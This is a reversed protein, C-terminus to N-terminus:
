FELFSSPTRNNDKISRMVGGINMAEHVYTGTALIGAEQALPCRNRLLTYRWMVKSSEGFAGRIWTLTRYSLGLLVLLVGFSFRLLVVNSCSRHNEAPLSKQKYNIFINNDNTM